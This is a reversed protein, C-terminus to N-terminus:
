VGILAMPPIFVPSVTPSVALWVGTFGKEAMGPGLPHGIM